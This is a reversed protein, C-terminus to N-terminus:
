NEPNKWEEGGTYDRVQRMLRANQERLASNFANITQASAAVFKMNKLCRNACYRWLVALFLTGLWLLALPLALWLPITM